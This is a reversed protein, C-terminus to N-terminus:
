LLGHLVRLTSNSFQLHRMTALQVQSGILVEHTRIESDARSLVTVLEYPGVRFLTQM